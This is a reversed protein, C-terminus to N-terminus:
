TEFGFEQPQCKSDWIKVKYFFTKIVFIVFLWNCFDWPYPKLDGSLEGNQGAVRLENVFDKLKFLELDTFVDEFLKLGKVVNVQWNCFYTLWYYGAGKQKYYLAVSSIM